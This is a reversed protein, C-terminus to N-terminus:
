VNFLKGLETDMKLRIADNMEKSEGIFQRQPIKISIQKKKTLAFNKWFAVDPAIAKDSSKGGSAYFKAWAFKRMKPTVTASITGGWNHVGAYLVDNQITVRADSPVYKTSSYLHNRGSMLTGYNGSASKGGFKERNSKQWKQLGNNVFGGKRFNEKVHEVGINGAYRPMKKRVLNDIEARKKNMEARFTNLNIKTQM